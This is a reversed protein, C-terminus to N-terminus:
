NDHTRTRTRTRTRTQKQKQKQKNTSKRARKKKHSKKQQRSLPTKVTANEKIDKTKNDNQEDIMLVTSTQIKSERDVVELDSELLMFDDIGGNIQANKFSETM